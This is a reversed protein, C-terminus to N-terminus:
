ASAEEDAKPAVSLATMEMGTETRMFKWTDGKAPIYSPTMNKVTDMDCDQEGVKANIVWEGTPLEKANEIVLDKQEGVEFDTRLANEDAGTETQEVDGAPVPNKRPRGM